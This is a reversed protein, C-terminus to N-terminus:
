FSIRQKKKVKKKFKLDCLLRKLVLCYNVNIGKKRWVSVV